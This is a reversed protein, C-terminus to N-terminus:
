CLNFMVEEPTQDYMEQPPQVNSGQVHQGYNGEMPQIFIGEEYETPDVESSQAFDERSCRRTHKTRSAQPRSKNVLYVIGDENVVKETQFQKKCQLCLFRPQQERKVRHNNYYKFRANNITLCFPCQKDLNRLEEPDQNRAKAYTRGAPRNHPVIGFMAKCALCEYRPQDSKHNNLYKFRCNNISNCRPCKKERNVHELPEIATANRPPKEDMRELAVSEISITRNRLRIEDM